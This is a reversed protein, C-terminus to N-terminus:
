HPKRITSWFGLTCKSPLASETHTPLPLPKKGILFPSRTGNGPGYNRISRRGRLIVGTPIARLPLIEPCGSLLNIFPVGLREALLVTKEFIAHHSHAIEANPHLPNGQCALGSIFLGASEVQKRYAPIRETAALLGDLDCHHNGPYAGTGIEVCDLGLSRVKELM